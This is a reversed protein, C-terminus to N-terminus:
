EAINSGHLHAIGWQGGREVLFLSRRRVEGVTGYHFSAVAGHAGIPQIVLDPDGVAPPRPTTGSGISRFYAAFAVRIAERGVQRHPTFPVFATADDVFAAIFPELDLAEFARLWARVLDEADTVIM